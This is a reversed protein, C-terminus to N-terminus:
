GIMGGWIFDDFVAPKEKGILRYQSIGLKGANRALQNRDTEVPTEKVEFAQAGNLVFDIESIEDAFYALKRGFLHSDAHLFLQHCVTNEYKAGGSLDYNINAIGTDVFYLKPAVRLRVDVSRSFPKILRILYTQEMFAVYSDVTQRSIGLVKSLQSINLKNGIRSALLQILRTFEKMSKFDSLSQVDMNIYSSFIMELQKKKDTLNDTLVVKPLAGFEIYEDYLHKLKQYTFGPFERDYSFEPLLYEEKKFRLFEGFSLPYLEYVVKRGAMSESFLNKLYYSSSGSILFKFNYHDHLYKVISPLEPLLQIEDIAIYMKQSTDLGLNKLEMIIRDYDKVSFLDRNVVNEFDFYYKNKSSIQSLLWYLTTTKGVQRAGTLVLVEDRDLENKLSEWIDRTEM